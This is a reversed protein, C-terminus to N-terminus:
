NETKAADLKVLSPKQFESGENYLAIKTLSGVLGDVHLGYKIQIDKIVQLTESDYKETMPIHDYGLQQLLQKLTKVDKAKSRQTIMGNLDIFNKWFIYAEGSWYKLFEDKDVPTIQNREGDVFYVKNNDIATVTLYKPWSHGIIYFTFIVPVNLNQILPLGSETAVPQVHLDYQNAAERFFIGATDIGSQKLLIEEKPFWLQLIQKMSNNRSSRSHLGQLYNLLNQANGSTQPQQVISNTQSQQTASNPGAALSDKARAIFNNYGEKSLRRSAAKALGYSQYKGAVVVYDTDGQGNKQTYMFSPFGLPKMNKLLLNAESATKFSGVHVSYVTRNELNKEGPESQSIELPKDPIELEDAPSDIPASNALAEANNNSEDPQSPLLSNKQIGIPEMKQPAHLKEVTASAEAVQKGESTIQKAEAQTIQEPPPTKSVVFTKPSQGNSLYLLLLILPIFIVSAIVLRSSGQLWGSSHGQKKRGLEKIAEKTIPGTIKFSNHGFANLLVRDCAINVLRPIGRSYEYIARYSAKDFPPGARHSARSIRHRIYDMSAQFTLPDLQCNITIRQGLQRLQHSSLMDGLEPQGVLIIQLLKEQTTELNSLLRLQELVELSLNQAEDILVLVKQGAAKKEILFGNLIDILDKTNDPQSDIGFEDNIVKLLQLADLKPNFIYAAEISNDLSGLFVRCLTTKGTGVEGTIEVFGDGHSIAYTLHGLAEEHSKSLFLYEPNPVLKFPKEKFGFFKNYM